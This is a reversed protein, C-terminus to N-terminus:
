IAGYSVMRKESKVEIPTHQQKKGKLDTAQAQEGGGELDANYKDVLNCFEQIFNDLDKSYVNILDITSDGDTITVQSKFCGLYSINAEINKTIPLGKFLETEM